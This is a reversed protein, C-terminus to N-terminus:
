RLAPAVPSSAAILAMMEPYTYVASTAPTKLGVAVMAQAVETTRIARFKAPTIPSFLRMAVALFRPTHQSGLILGPRFVSVIPPGQIVVAAEAEGKVRAYRAMGPVGSGTTAAKLNAGMASMFALHRVRGSEKLGRAFAANILVDVARHEDLSMRATGAGVGLVSFGAAEGEHKRLAQSVAMVLAQPAMRPVVVQSVRPDGSLDLPRRTMVIVREFGGSSLIAALLAQGVSGSAGLLVATPEAM